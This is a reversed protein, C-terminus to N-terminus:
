TSLIVLNCQTFFPCPNSSLVKAIRKLNLAIAALLCEESARHIGRKKIRKLNHQNKLAGFTGESWISRLRKMLFYNETKCRERNAHYAPYFGSANIRVAGKDVACHHLHECGACEKRPIRYIRYYGQNYQKYTIQYFRLRKEKMCIFSDAKADYTFGKKLANNHMIRPSCYDTIGLLEFGRYM